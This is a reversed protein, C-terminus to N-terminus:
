HFRSQTSKICFSTEPLSNLHGFWHLRRSRIIDIITKDVTLKKRVDVNRLRDRISVGMGTILTTDDAYRIDSSFEHTSSLTQELSKLELM